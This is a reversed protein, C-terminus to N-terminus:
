QPARLAVWHNAAWKEGATVRVGSHVAAPDLTGDEHHNYFLLCSGKKPRVALGGETIGSDGGGTTAAEIAATPGEAAPFHTEGGMEVDNLYYFATLLRPQFSSSDHHLAFTDGSSYHVIQLDESAQIQEIPLGVLSALRRQLTQLLPNVAASLWVSESSRETEGLAGGMVLSRQLQPRAQLILAECEDDTLYHEIIVVLPRIALTTLTRVVGEDITVERSHGVEVGDLRSCKASAAAAEIDVGGGESADASQEASSAAIAEAMAYHRQAEKPQNSSVLINGMLHHAAVYMPREKLARECHTKANQVALADARESLLVALNFHAEAYEPKLEIATRWSAEAEAKDGQQLLIAAVNNHVAAIAPQISIVKRYYSLAEGLHNRRHADVASQYASM